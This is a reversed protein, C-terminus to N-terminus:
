RDIIDIMYVRSVQCPVCWFARRWLEDHVTPTDSYLNKRHAGVDVALRIGTGVISWAAQGLACSGQLFV